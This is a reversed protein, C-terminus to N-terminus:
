GAFRGPRTRLNEHRATFWLELITKERIGINIMGKKSLDIDATTGYSL